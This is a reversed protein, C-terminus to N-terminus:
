ALPQIETHTMSRSRKDSLFTELPGTFMNEDTKHHSVHHLSSSARKTCISTTLFSFYFILEYSHTINEIPFVDHLFTMTFFHLKTKSKYHRRGNKNKDPSHRLCMPKGLSLSCPNLNITSHIYLYILLGTSLHLNWIGDALSTESPLMGLRTTRARANRVHCDNSVMAFLSSLLCEEATM